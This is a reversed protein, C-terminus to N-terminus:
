QTELLDVRWSFECPDGIYPEENPCRIEAQRVDKYCLVVPAYSLIRKTLEGHVTSINLDLPPFEINNITFCVNFGVDRGFASADFIHALALGSPDPIKKKFYSPGGITRGGASFVAPAPQDCATLALVAATIIVGRIRV